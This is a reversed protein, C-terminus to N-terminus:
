KKQVEAIVEKSSNEVINETAFAILQNTNNIKDILAFVFDNLILLTENLSDANLLREQLEHANKYEILNLNVPNDALEQSPFGFLDSIAFPKFFYAILTFNEYFTIHDPLITQGFLTLYNSSNNIQGKSNQFLLTPK